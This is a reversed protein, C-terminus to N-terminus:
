SRVVACARIGGALPTQQQKAGFIERGPLAESVSAPATRVHNIRQTTIYVLIWPVDNGGRREGAPEEQKHREGIADGRDIRETRTEPDGTVVNKETESM